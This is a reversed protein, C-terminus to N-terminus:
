AARVTIGPPVTNAYTLTPGATPLVYAAWSAVTQDHYAVSAVNNVDQDPYGYFSHLFGRNQAAHGRLTPQTGSAGAARNFICALWCLGPPLTWAVTGLKAGTGTGIAVKGTQQLLTGLGGAYYTPGYVGFIAEAEADGSGTTVHVGIRDIARSTGPVVLPFVYLRNETVLITGADTTAPGCYHRGTVWGPHDVIEPLYLPM